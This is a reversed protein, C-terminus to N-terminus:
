TLYGANIYFHAKRIRELDKPTFKEQQSYIDANESLWQEVQGQDLLEQQEDSTYLAHRSILDKVQEDSFTTNVEAKFFNKIDKVLAASPERYSKIYPDRTKMFAKIRDKNKESWGAKALYVMPLHLALNQGNLVPVWDEDFAKYIYPSWLLLYDGKGAQFAKLADEPEMSNINIDRETLNFKKLYHHLLVSSTSATTLIFTKGKILSQSGPLGDTKQSLIPDGQRAFLINAASEDSALGVLEAQGTNLVLLAPFVGLSAIQWDANQLRAYIDTGTQYYSPKLDFGAALDEKAQAAQYEPWADLQVLSHVSLPEAAIDRGQNSIGLSAESCAALFALALVCIIATIPKFYAKM